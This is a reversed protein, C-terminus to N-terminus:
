RLSGNVARIGDLERVGLAMYGIQSGSAIRLLSGGDNDVMVRVVMV